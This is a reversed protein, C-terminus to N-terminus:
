NPLIFGNFTIPQRSNSNVQLTATGNAYVVLSMLSAHKGTEPRISIDWKSKKYKTQYRSLESAINIGLDEAYSGMSATFSRGYYPLATTVSDDFVKMNYLNNLVVGDASIATHAMFTYKKSQITQGVASTDADQAKLSQVCCSFFVFLALTITTHTTKQM